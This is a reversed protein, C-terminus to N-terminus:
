PFYYDPDSFQFNLLLDSQTLIRELFDKLRFPSVLMFNHVNVNVVFLEELLKYYEINIICSIGFM